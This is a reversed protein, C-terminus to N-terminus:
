VRLGVGEARIWGRLGLGVGWVRSGLGWDWSGLSWVGCGFGCVGFRLRWVGFGLGWVGCGVGRDEFGSVEVLNSSLAMWSHDLNDMFSVVGQNSIVYASVYCVNINLFYPVRLYMDDNCVWPLQVVLGGVGEVQVPQNLVCQLLQGVGERLQGRQSQQVEPVVAELEECGVDSAVLLVGGFGEGSGRCM